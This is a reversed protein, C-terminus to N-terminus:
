TTEEEKEKTQAETKDGVETEEAEEGEKEGIIETEVPEEVEEIEEAVEQVLLVPADLGEEGVVIEVKDRNYKLDALTISQGIATLQAIDIEFKEPLDTPLAEVEVEDRVTVLVAEPIDLEGTTKVPIQATIKELLSVAKFSVHIPEDTIPDLQLEDVMVPIEKKDLSLYVVGSEGVQAFLEKFSKTSFQVAQSERGAGFVNGPISGDRRLQKVNTALDRKIAQIQYKKM